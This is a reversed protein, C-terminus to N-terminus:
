CRSPPSCNGWSWVARSWAVSSACLPVARPASVTRTSCCRAHLSRILRRETSAKGCSTSVGLIVMCTEGIYGCTDQRLSKATSRLTPIPDYALLKSRARQWLARRRCGGGEIDECSGRLLLLELLRRPSSPAPVSVSVCGVCCCLRSVGLEGGRSEARNSTHLHTSCAVCLLDSHPMGCRLLSLPPLRASWRRARGDSVAARSAEAEAAQALDRARGPVRAVGRRLLLSRTTTAGRQAHQKRRRKKREGCASGPRRPACTWATCELRLRLWTLCRM